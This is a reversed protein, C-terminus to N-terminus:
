GKASLHHTEYGQIVGRNNGIRQTFSSPTGGGAKKWNKVFSKIIYILYISIWWESEVFQMELTVGRFVLM